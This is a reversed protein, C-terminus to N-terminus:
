VRLLGIQWSLEKLLDEQSDGHGTTFGHEIMFAALKEKQTAVARNLLDAIMAATEPTGEFEVIVEGDEDKVAYVNREASDLWEELLKFSEEGLLKRTEESRLDM